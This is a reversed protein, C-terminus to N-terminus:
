KKANGNLEVLGEPLDDKAIQWRFGRSLTLHTLSQPLVGQLPYDFM